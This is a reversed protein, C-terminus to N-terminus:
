MISYDLIDKKKGKNYHSILLQKKGALNAGIFAPGMDFSKMKNITSNKNHMEKEKLKFYFLKIARFSDKYYAFPNKTKTGFIKEYWIVFDNVNLMVERQGKSALTSVWKDHIDKKWHRHPDGLALLIAELVASIQWKSKKTEKGRIAIKDKLASNEDDHLRYLFEALPDKSLLKAYWYDPAKLRPDYNNTFIFYKAELESTAFRYKAIPVHSYGLEKAALLRHQGDVVENNQNVTIPKDSLFQGCAIIGQKVQKVRAPQTVRQYDQNFKLSEVPVKKTEILTMGYENDAETKRAKPEKLRELYKM